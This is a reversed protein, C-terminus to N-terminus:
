FCKIAVLFLVLKSLQNYTPFDKIETESEAAQNLFCFIVISTQDPTGTNKSAEQTSRNM